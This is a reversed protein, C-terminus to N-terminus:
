RKIALYEMGGEAIDGLLRMGRNTAATDILRGRM